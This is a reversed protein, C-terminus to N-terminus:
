EYKAPKHCKWHLREGMLNGLTIRAIRLGELDRLLDFGIVILDGSNGPRHVCDQLRAVVM